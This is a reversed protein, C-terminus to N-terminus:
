QVEFLDLSILTICAIFVRATKKYFSNRLSLVIFLYKGFHIAFHIM